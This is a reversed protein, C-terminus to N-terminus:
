EIWDRIKLYAGMMLQALPVADGYPHKLVVGSYSGDIYLNYTCEAGVEIKIATPKTRVAGLVVIPDDSDLQITVNLM